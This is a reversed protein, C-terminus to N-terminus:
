YVLLMKYTLSPTGIGIGYMFFIAGFIYIFCAEHPTPSKLKDMLIICASATEHWIGKLNNGGNGWLDYDERRRKQM